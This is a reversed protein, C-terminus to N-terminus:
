NELWAPQSHPVQRLAPRSVLRLHPQIGCASSVGSRTTHALFLTAAVTQGFDYIEACLM